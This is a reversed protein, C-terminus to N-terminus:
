GVRRRFVLRGRDSVAECYRYSAECFDKLIDVTQANKEALYRVMRGRAAKAFFGIVTYRGGTYDEFVPKVVDYQLPKKLFISFYQDSALNVLLGKQATTVLSNVYNTVWPGASWFHGPSPSPANSAVKQWATNMELRYAQILDFPRVLGYLASLICVHRSLWSLAETGLTEAACHEYVDGRYAFIAPSSQVGVTTASWQQFRQANLEALPQSVALMGQVQQVTLTKLFSMLVRTHPTFLTKTGCFGAPVAWTTSMRKAPSIVVLM